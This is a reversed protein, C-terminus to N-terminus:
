TRFIKLFISETSQNQLHEKRNSRQKIYNFSSVMDLM